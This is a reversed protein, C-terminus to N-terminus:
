YRKIVKHSGMGKMNRGLEKSQRGDMVVKVMVKRALIGVRHTLFAGCPM